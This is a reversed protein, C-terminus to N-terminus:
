FEFGYACRRCRTENPIQDKHMVRNRCGTCWICKCRGQPYLVRLENPLTYLVGGCFVCLEIDYEIIDSSQEPTLESM